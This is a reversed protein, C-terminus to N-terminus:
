SGDEVEEALYRLFSIPPYCLTSGHKLIARIEESWYDGCWNPYVTVVAFSARDYWSPRLVVIMRGVVRHTDLVVCVCGDSGRAIVESAPMGALLDPVGVGPWRDMLQEQAHRPFHFDFDIGSIRGALGFPEQWWEVTTEVTEM